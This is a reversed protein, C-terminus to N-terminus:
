EHKLEGSLAKNAYDANTLEKPGNATQGAEAIGGLEREAILKETRDNELRLEEKAERIEKAVARGEEIVPTSSKPVVNEPEEEVGLEKLEKKKKEIENM